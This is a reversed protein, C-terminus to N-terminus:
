YNEQYDIRGCRPVNQAGSNFILSWILLKYWIDYWIYNNNIDILRLLM